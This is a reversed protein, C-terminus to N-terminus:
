HTDFPLLSPFFGACAKCIVPEGFLKNFAPISHYSFNRTKATDNIVRGQAPWKVVKHYIMGSELTRMQLIFPNFQQVEWTEELELIGSYVINIKCLCKRLWEPTITNSESAPLMDGLNQLLLLFPVLSEDSNKNDDFM